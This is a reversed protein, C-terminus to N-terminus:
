DELVAYNFPIKGGKRVLPTLMNGVEADRLAIAEALDLLRAVLLSMSGAHAHAAVNMVLKEKGTRAARELELEVDKVRRRLRSIYEERTPM